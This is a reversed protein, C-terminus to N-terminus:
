LIFCNCLTRQRAGFLCRLTAMSNKMHVNTRLACSGTPAAASHMGTLGTTTTVHGTTDIIVNYSTLPRARGALSIQCSLRHGIKSWKGPGPPFHCAEIDLGTERALAALGAKRSRNEYGNSGGSDCTV